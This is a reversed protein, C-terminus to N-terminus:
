KKSVKHHRNKRHQVWNNLLEISLAYCIAFYVYNRPVHFHFGDAILLTGILLIFSLALIKITPRTEIFHSLPESAFIMVLITIIIAAAMIGFHPTMGVATFVSDISFVIDLIGIQLIVAPVKDYHHKVTNEIEPETEAHIQLTAKYLLFLGGSILLIDRISFANDFLTLLPQELHAIWFVGALLILRTAMALLLGIRRAMKQKEPALRNSAIAIFVLNDIGLIIELVTLSFLSVLMNLLSSLDM